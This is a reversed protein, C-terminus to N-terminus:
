KGAMRLPANRDFTGDRGEGVLRAWRQVHYGQYQGGVIALCQRVSNSFNKVFITSMVDCNMTATAADAQPIDVNYEAAAALSNISPLAAKTDYMMLVSENEANDNMPVGFDYKDFMDKRNISILGNAFHSLSDPFRMSLKTNSSSLSPCETKLAEDVRSRVIADLKGDMKRALEGQGGLVASLCIETCDTSAPSTSSTVTDLCGQQPPPALLSWAVLVGSYFSVFCSSFLVIIWTIRDVSLRPKSPTSYPGRGARTPLLVSDSARRMATNENGFFLTM